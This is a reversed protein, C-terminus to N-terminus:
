EDIAYVIVALSSNRYYNSTISRYNESGCTDWIQLKLIKEKIFINFCFLEFGVTAIHEEEFVNKTAKISICSKGVGTNGIIIIKFSLDNKPYDDPLIKIKGWENSEM